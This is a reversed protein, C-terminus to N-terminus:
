KEKSFLIEIIDELKEAFRSFAYGALFAIACYFMVSKSYNIDSVTGVSLLGGIILFYVFIGAVISIPPRFIYWWFWKMEFTNGGLNKYFGRISYLTGGIGGSCGIYILSKILSDSIKIIYSFYVFIPIIMLSCLVLLLYIGTLNMQLERKM